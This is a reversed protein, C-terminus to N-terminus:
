WIWTTTLLCWAAMLELMFLQVVLYLTISGVDLNFELSSWTDPVPIKKSGRCSLTVGAKNLFTITILFSSFIVHLVLTSIACLVWSLPLFLLFSFIIMWFFFFSYLLPWLGRILLPLKLCYCNQHVSLCTPFLLSSILLESIYPFSSPDAQICSRPQM